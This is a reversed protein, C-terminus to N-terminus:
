KQRQHSHTRCPQSMPTGPSRWETEVVAKTTRKVSSGMLVATGAMVAARPTPCHVAATTTDTPDRIAAPPTETVLPMETVEVLFGTSEETKMIKMTRMKRRRTM